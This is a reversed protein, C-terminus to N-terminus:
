SKELNKSGNECLSRDTTYTAAFEKTAISKISLELNPESPEGQDPHTWGLAEQVNKLLALLRCVGFITFRVNDACQGKGAISSCL